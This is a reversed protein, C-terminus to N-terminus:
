TRHNRTLSHVMSVIVRLSGPITSRLEFSFRAFPQRNM